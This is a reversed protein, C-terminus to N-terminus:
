LNPFFDIGLDELPIDLAAVYFVLHSLGDCRIVSAHVFDRMLYDEVFLAEPSVTLHSALELPTEERVKLLDELLAADSHTIKYSLAESKSTPCSLIAEFLNGVEETSRNLLEVIEPNDLTNQLGSVAVQNVDITIWAGCLGNHFYTERLATLVDCVVMELPPCPSHTDAVEELLDAFILRDKRAIIYEFYTATVELDDLDILHSTANFIDETIRVMPTVQDVNFYWDGKHEILIDIKRMLDMEVLCDKILRQVHNLSLTNYVMLDRVLPARVKEVISGILYDLDQNYFIVTNSITVSCNLENLNNFNYNLFIKTVDLKALGLIDNQTNVKM